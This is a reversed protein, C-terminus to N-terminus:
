IFGRSRHLLFYHLHLPYIILDVLLLNGLRSVDGLLEVNSTRDVKHRVGKSAVVPKGTDATGVSDEVLYENGGGHDVTVQHVAVRSAQLPKHIRHNSIRDLGLHGETGRCSSHHSGMSLLQKCWDNGNYRDRICMESGVLSRLM